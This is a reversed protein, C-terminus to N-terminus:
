QGPSCIERLFAMCAQIEPLQARKGKVMIRYSPEITIPIRQAHQGLRAQAHADFLVGIGVGDRVMDALVNGFQSGSIVRQPKIGAQALMRMMSLKVLPIAPLIFPIRSIADPDTGVARVIAPSAFLSCPIIGIAEIDEAEPPKQSITYVGLDAKGARVQEMISPRKLGLVFEPELNPSRLHLEPLRPKIISDLLYDGTMVRVRFPAERSGGGGVQRRQTLIEQATALLAEGDESLKAPAGRQREFLTKGVSRELAHIQKSIAPQSIGLRDATRRFNGDQAAEIFIELQRFTFSM